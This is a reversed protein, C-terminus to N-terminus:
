LTVFVAYISVPIKTVPLARCDVHGARINVYILDPAAILRPM